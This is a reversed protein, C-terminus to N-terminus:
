DRRVSYDKCDPNTSQLVPALQELREHMEQSNAPWGMSHLEEESKDKPKYRLMRAVPDDEPVPRSQESETSEAPTFTRARAWGLIDLNERAPRAKWEAYTSAKSVMRSEGKHDDADSIQTDPETDEHSVRDRSEFGGIVGTLAEEQGNERKDLANEQGPTM